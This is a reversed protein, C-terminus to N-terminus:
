KIEKPEVFFENQNCIPMFNSKEEKPSPVLPMPQNNTAPLDILLSDEQTSPDEIPLQQQLEKTKNSRYSRIFPRPRIKMEEEELALSRAQLLRKM